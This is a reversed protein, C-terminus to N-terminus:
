GYYCDALLRDVIKFFFFFLTSFYIPLVRFKFFFLCVFCVSLGNGIKYITKQKVYMETQSYYASAIISLRSDDFGNDAHMRSM